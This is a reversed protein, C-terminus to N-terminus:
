SPPKGYLGSWAAPGTSWGGWIVHATVKSRGLHGSTVRHPWTKWGDIGSHAPAAERQKSLEGPDGDTHPM